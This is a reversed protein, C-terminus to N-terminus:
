PQKRAVFVLAIGALILLTAVAESLSISERMFLWGGLGALAPVSLQVVSASLMTLGPLVSYWIAYGMASTVAGSAIALWVGKASLQFQGFAFPTFLVAILGALMFAMCMGALASRNQPQKGLITFIAWCLGAVAM